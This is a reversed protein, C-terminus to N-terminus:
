RERKKFIKVNIANSALANGLHAKAQASQIIQIILYRNKGVKRRYTKVNTRIM